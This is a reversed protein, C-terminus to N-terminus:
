LNDIVEEWNKILNKWEFKESMSLSGESNKQLLEPNDILQNIKKIVDDFSNLVFGNEDTTMWELAGYDHYVISPIASAAAELIVKPFGESRSPLFLLDIKKLKQPLDERNIKGHLIINDSFEIKKNKDGKNKWKDKLNVTRKKSINGIIHFNLNPFINALKFFDEVGKRRILSGIFVINKLIQKKEPIFNDKEVGLYLPSNNLKVGCKANQIIHKTIGYINPILSFYNQMNKVGNFSDIMSKVRRNCMNGEITTFFKKNLIKAFRLAIKPTSHHKPFYCIDAWFVGRLFAFTNCPSFVRQSVKIYSVGKLNEISKNGFLLTKVSYKNKDLHTAISKCNINQANLYNIYAGLFIKKKKM